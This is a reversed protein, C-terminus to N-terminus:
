VLVVRAVDQAVEGESLEWDSVEIGSAEDHGAVAEAVDGVETEWEEGGDLRSESDGM